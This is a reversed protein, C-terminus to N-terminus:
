HKSKLKEIEVLLGHILRTQDADIAERKEIWTGRRELKTEHRETIRVLELYSQYSIVTPSAGGLLAAMAVYLLNNKQPIAEVAVTM